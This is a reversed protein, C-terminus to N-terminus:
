HRLGDVVFWVRAESVSAVARVLTAGCEPCQYHEEFPSGNRTVVGVLELHQPKTDASEGHMAICARCPTETM